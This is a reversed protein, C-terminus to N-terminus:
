LKCHLVGADRPVGFGGNVNYTGNVEKTVHDYTFTVSLGILTFIREWSWWPASIHLSFDNDSLRQVTVPMSPLPRPILVPPQFSSDTDYELRIRGTAGHYIEDGDLDVFCTGKCYAEAHWDCKSTFAGTFQM